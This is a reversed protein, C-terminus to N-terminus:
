PRVVLSFDSLEIDVGSPNMSRLRLRIDGGPAVYRSPDPISNDGWKLDPITVWDAAAVDWLSVIPGVSGRAGYSELHLILSEVASYRIPQAVSFRLSYSNKYLRGSYASADSNPPAEIVRWTFLGPPIELRQEEVALAPELAIVYLTTDATNFAQGALRVDLPSEDSWGALYFGAGRGSTSNFNTPSMAAQILDYRRRSDRDDYIPTSGLIDGLTPDGAVASLPGTSAQSMQLPIQISQTHGPDFNGLRQAIGPGLLVMDRLALGSNNAISGQLTVGRSDFRLALDDAFAPAPVQGEVVLSSIGGVEIRVDPLTLSDNTELITWTEGPVSSQYGSPLPRVLFRRDFEVQYVSRYPSYVGLLGDVQAQGAGPWVQVIALRSLVAQNGRAQSGILFAAVSFVIALGPISLWALERRRLVRLVLYNLPGVAVIYLGLFGCILSTSPLELSPLATVASQAAYWQRFGRAWSPKDIPSLLMSRYLAATGDWGRLPELAPDAALYYVDGFGVRRRAVLPVGAQSSLVEAGEVVSGTAVVASGTPSDLGVAYTQLSTLSSLTQTSEPLIPLLDRLGATTKQWGPGGTVVLRGGSALWGALAERQAATLVGTDVDSVVLADLSALTRSQDPLEDVALQTVIAAQNSPKAESLTNFASPSSALVGYLLNNDAICTLSVSAQAVQSGDAVFSVELSNLHSEPNVHLRVEKRSVTPLSLPAAYVTESGDGRPLRVEIRGDRGPGNNELVARVPFWHGDKCYGDFGARASLTVDGPGQARVARPAALGAILGALVLGCCVKAVIRNRSPIVVNAM